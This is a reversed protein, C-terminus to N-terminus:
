DINRRPALLRHLYEGETPDCADVLCSLKFKSERYNENMFLVHGFKDFNFTNRQKDM